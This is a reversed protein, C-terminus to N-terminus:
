LTFLSLSNPKLTNSLEVLKLFHITQTSKAQYMILYFVGFWRYGYYCFKLHLEEKWLLRSVTQEGDGGARGSEQFFEEMTNTKQISYTHDLYVLTTIRSVQGNISWQMAFIAEALLEEWYTVCDDDTRSAKATLLEFLLPVCSTKM